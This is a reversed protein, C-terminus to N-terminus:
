KNCKKCNCKRKGKDQLLSRFLRYCFFVEKLLVRFDSQVRTDIQFDFSLTWEKFMFGSYSSFDISGKVSVVYISVLLVFVLVLILVLDKKTKMNNGGLM